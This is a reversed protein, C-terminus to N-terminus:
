VHSCFLQGHHQLNKTLKLIQFGMYEFTSRKSTLRDLGLRTTSLSLKPVSLSETSLPMSGKLVERSSLSSYELSSSSIFKPLRPAYFTTTRKRERDPSMLFPSAIESFSKSRRITPVRAIYFNFIVNIKPALRYNTILM